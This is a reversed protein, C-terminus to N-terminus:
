HPPILPVITEEEYNNNNEEERWRQSRGGEIERWLKWRGRGGEEEHMNYVYKGM